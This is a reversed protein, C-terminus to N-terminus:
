LKEEMFLGRLGFNDNFSLFAWVTYRVFGNWEEDNFLHIEIVMFAPNLNSSYSFLRMLPPKAIM